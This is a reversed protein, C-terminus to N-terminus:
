RGLLHDLFTDVDSADGERPINLGILDIIGTLARIAINLQNRALAKAFITELRALVKGFETARCVQAEEAFREKAQAIYTDITRPSVNWGHKDRALKLIQDRRLGALQMNYVENVRELTLRTQRM